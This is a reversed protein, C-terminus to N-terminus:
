DNNNKYVNVYETLQLVEWHRKLGALAKAKLMKLRLSRPVSSEVGEIKSLCGQFDKADLLQFACKENDVASRLTRHFLSCDPHESALTFSKEAQTFNGLKTQSRGILLHAKPNAADFQLARNCDDIAEKYKEL